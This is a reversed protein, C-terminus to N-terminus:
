ADSLERHARSAADSLLAERLTSGRGPESEVRVYGQAGRRHGERDGPMFGHRSARDEEVALISCTRCISPGELHQAGPNRSLIYGDQDLAFIAYEKVSEVLLRCLDASSPLNPTADAGRRTKSTAPNMMAPRSAHAWFTWKPKARPTFLPGYVDTLVHSPLTNPDQSNDTQPM